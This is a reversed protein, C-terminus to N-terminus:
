KTSTIITRHIYQTCSLHESTEAVATAQLNWHHTALCSAGRTKHPTPSIIVVSLNLSEILIM